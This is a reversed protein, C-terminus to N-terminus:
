ELPVPEQIVACFLDVHIPYGRVTAIVLKFTEEALTNNALIVAVLLFSFFLADSNRRRSHTVVLDFFLLLIVELESL